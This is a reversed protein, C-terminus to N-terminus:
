ACGSFNVAREFNGARGRRPLRGVGHLGRAQSAHPARPAYLAFTLSMGGSPSGGRCRAGRHTRVRKSLLFKAADMDGAEPIQAAITVIRGYCM